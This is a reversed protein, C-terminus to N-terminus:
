PGAERAKAVWAAVRPGEGPELALVVAGDPWRDPRRDDGGLLAATGLPAGEPGGKGDAPVLLRGAGARALSRARAQEAPTRCRGMVWAEVAPVAERVWGLMQLPDLEYVPAAAPVPELHGALLLVGRAGLVAAARAEALLATRNRDRGVLPLVLSWDPRVELAERALALPHVGDEPDLLVIGDAAGLAEMDRRLTGVDDPLVRGVGVYVERGAM